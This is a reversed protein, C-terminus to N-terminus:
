GGPHRVRVQLVDVIAPESGPPATYDVADNCFGPLICFHPARPLTDALVRAAPPRAPRYM